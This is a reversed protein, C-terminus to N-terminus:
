DVKMVLLFSGSVLPEEILKDKERRTCAVLGDGCERQATKQESEV